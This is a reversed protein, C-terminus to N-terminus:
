LNRYKAYRERVSDMYQADTMKGELVLRYERRADESARLGEMRLSAEANKIATEITTNKTKNKMEATAVYTM